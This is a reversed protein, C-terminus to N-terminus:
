SWAGVSFTIPLRGAVRGPRRLERRASGSPAAALEDDAALVVFGVLVAPALAVGAFFVAAGAAFFRDAAPVVEDAPLFVGVEFAFGAARPVFAAGAFRRDVVAADAVVGVAFFVAAFAVEFVDVAVDDFAVGPARGVRPVRRAAAGTASGERLSCGGTGVAGREPQAM